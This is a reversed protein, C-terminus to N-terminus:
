ALLSDALLLGLKFDSVTLCLRLRQPLVARRAAVLTILLSGLKDVIAGPIARILHVIQHVGVPLLAIELGSCQAECVVVEDVVILLPTLAVRAGTCDLIVPLAREM